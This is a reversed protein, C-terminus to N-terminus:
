WDYKRKRLDKRMKKYDDMDFWSGDVELLTDAYNKKGVKKEVPEIIIKQNMLELKLWFETGLGLEDRFDKPITIQGQSFSKIYKMMSFNLIFQIETNTLQNM